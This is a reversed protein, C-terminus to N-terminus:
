ARQAGEIANEDGGAAIVIEGVNQPSLDGERLGCALRGLARRQEHAEALQALLLEALDFRGHVGEALRQGDVRGGVVRAGRQLAVERVGLVADGGRLRELRNVARAAVGRRQDGGELDERACRERGIATDRLEALDRRQALGLAVGVGREGREAAREGLIRHRSRDALLELPQGALDSPFPENVEVLSCCGTRRSSLPAGGNGVLLQTGIQQRAYGLHPLLSEAIGGAGGGDVLAYGQSGRGRRAAQGREVRELTDVNRRVLHPREHRRQGALDFREPIDGRLLLGAELRGLHQLVHEFVRRAGDLDVATHELDIGLIDGSEIRELPQENAELPPRLKAVDVDPLGLDRALRALALAHEVHETLDVIVLDAIAVLRDLGVAAHEVDIGVVALRHLRELPEVAGGLAPVIQDAYELPLGRVRQVDVLRDGQAMPDAFDRRAAKRIKRAGDLGIALRERDIRRVLRREDRELRHEDTPRTRLDSGLSEGRSLDERRDVLAFDLPLLERPDEIDEGIEALVVLTEGHVGLEGGYALELEAVRRARHVGARAREAETGVIGGREGLELAKRRRGAAERLEDFEVLLLRTAAKRRPAGGVERQADSAHLVLREGIGLRGREGIALGEVGLAVGARRKGREFPDVLAQVPGGIEGLHERAPDRARPGHGGRLACVQPEAEPAQARLPQAIRAAREVAPALHDRAAGFGGGVGRRDLRELREVVGLRAARERELNRARELRVVDFDAVPGLERMDALREEGAGLAPVLPAHDGRAKGLEGLPTEAVGRQREVPPAARQAVIRGGRLGGVLHLPEGLQRSSPLIERRAM